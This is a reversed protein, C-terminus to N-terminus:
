AQVPYAQLWALLEAEPMPKAFLYGQAEHCGLERLTHSQAETEVGEAIVQIGLRRGLEIVMNAISGQPGGEFLDAVFSRDIKLRDFSLRKLQSLSSYGTGFDDIALQVGLRRLEALAEGLQTADEMAVSETIELELRHPDIRTERMVQEIEQLFRPHRFQIASVNVAIRLKDFGQAHLRAITACANRLVFEGLERILGSQEAAPIFRDPPIMRGEATRWRVLAEMGVVRSSALEIQPQFAVFLEQHSLGYRLANLMQVREQAQAALSPSYWAFHGRHRAKAQRLAQSAAELVAAGDGPVDDLRALGCTVSVMSEEGEISFPAHFLAQLADPQVSSEPGLVAFVDSSVRSIVWDPQACLSLRETVALLLYNGFIPGLAENTDGFHDIDILALTQPGLGSSLRQGDITECLSRRNPLNLLRDFYAYRHLRDLLSRNDLCALLSGILVDDLGAPLAQMIQNPSHEVVVLLNLGSAGVVHLVLGAPTDHLVSGTDLAQEICRRLTPEGLASLPQESLHSYHGEAQGIVVEGTGSHLLAAFGVAPLGHLEAIQRLATREFEAASRTRMLLTGADVIRRLARRAREIASIQDYARIASAVCTYLHNRTLESKTRYDNIDYDRIAEIEPAYGPQGTHLIIRCDSRKLEDRIYRVLTLGSDEREMVVDLLVVAIDPQQLQEHAERVSHAHLFELRGSLISLDRLAFVVSQHVGPDDDVILVRWRTAHAAAEQAEGDEAAFTLEDNGDDAQMRAM